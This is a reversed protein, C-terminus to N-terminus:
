ILGKFTEEHSLVKGEKYNRESEELIDELTLKRLILRDGQLIVVLSDGANLGLKERLRKPIVIQGKSSMRTTELLAMFQSRRLRVLLVSLGIM